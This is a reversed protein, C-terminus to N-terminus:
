DDGGGNAPVARSIESFRGLFAATWLGGVAATMAIALVAELIPGVAAPPFGPLTLWFSELLGAAFMVFAIAGVRAPIRRWPSLMLLLLPVFGQFLFLAWIAIGWGHSARRVYWAIDRPLDGSWVVIYQMAHLYGWLLIMSILLGGTAILKAAPPAVFMRIMAAFALGALWQHTLFILGYMSSSFDLDISMAWDVGALSATSGDLILGVSAAAGRPRDLRIRTALGIWLAFYLVSRVTFFWRSLYVARFSTEADWGSQAWPYIYAAGILVPLFLLAAIPITRIAALVPAALENRWAGGILAMMALIPICGIPVSTWGIAAALYVQLSARADVFLGIVGVIAGAIGIWLSLRIAREVDIAPTATM